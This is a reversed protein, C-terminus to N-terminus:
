RRGERRRVLRLCLSFRTALLAYFEFFINRLRRTGEGQKGEKEKSRWAGLGRGEHGGESRKTLKAVPGPPFATLGKCARGGDERCRPLAYTLFYM